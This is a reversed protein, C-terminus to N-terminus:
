TLARRMICVQIHNFLFKSSKKIHFYKVNGVYRVTYLKCDFAYESHESDDVAIVVIRSDNMKTFESYTYLCMM